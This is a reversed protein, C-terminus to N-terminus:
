LLVNNLTATTNLLFITTKHLFYIDTHGNNKEKQSAVVTLRPQERQTQM